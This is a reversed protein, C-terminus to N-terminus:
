FREYESEHSYSQQRDEVMRLTETLEQEISESSKNRCLLVKVAKKMGYVILCVFPLFALIVQCASVISIILQYGDHDRYAVQYNYMTMANILALLGLMMIDLVNHWQQKYPQAVAHLVLTITLQLALLFYFLTISDTVAYWTLALLRYIFFLGAFFRCKDKFCGQFSDFFPKLKELPIIACFFKMLCSDDQIRLLAFVKYCLPYVILLCPPIITLVFTFLLAPIAYVLHPKDLFWIDGSLYVAKSIQHDKPSGVWHIYGPTLISLSVKTVQAYCIVLFAALGHIASINASFQKIMCPLRLFKRMVSPNCVRMATVTAIILILSYTVTVYKFALMDLTTATSWMCYSLEDLTFFNLNFIGYVIHNVKITYSIVEHPVIIGDVDMNMADIMQIYFIFSNFMGSTFQVDYVIIVLFLITVPLLESVFYLLASVKCTYDNLKCQYTTSHYFVSNNSRCRGCLKGTRHHGCVYTDLLADSTDQPLRYESLYYSATYDYHCFGRPCQGTILQQEVESTNYGVWFGSRIYATRNQRNCRMIGVYRKNLTDTSCVCQGTPESLVFGPPCQTMEVSAVVVIPQFEANTLVIDATEGPKGYLRVVKRESVYTYAQDIRITANLNSKQVSAHFTDYSPQLLEDLMNFNLTAEQGPFVPIPGFSNHQADLREGSTSVQISVNDSFTFEGICGFSEKISTNNSVTWNGLRKHICLRQCPRLTSAFIAKGYVARNDLFKFELSREELKRDGLYQIFCSKLSIFDHENSSFYMIAGGRHVATNNHFLFTSHDNVYLVSAGFLVVAGGDYGTNSSFEILSNHQFNVRCSSLYMASGNNQKFITAESFYLFFSACSFVGKGSEYHKFGNHASNFYALNKVVSNSVFKCNNFSISSLYGHNYIDVSRPLMDVAPGYLATNSSISCNSFTMSMATVKNRSSYIRVGGGYQGANNEIVECNKFEVMNWTNIHQDYYAAFGLDIGGGNYFSRNRIFRSNQVLVSTNKPSNMYHIRIGGGWLAFNNSIISDKITINVNNPENKFALRVGGGQGFGEYKTSSGIGDTFSPVGCQNEVFKCGAIFYVSRIDSPIHDHIFEIYLGGALALVSKNSAKCNGDFSTNMMRVHGNTQNLLLGSGSGNRIIVNTLTVNTCSLMILGSMIFMVSDGMIKTDLTAGCGNFVINSIHLNTVNTFRFGAGSQTCVIETSGVGIALGDLHLGAVDTIRVEYEINFKGNCLTIAVMDSSVHPPFTNLCVLSQSYNAARNNCNELCELRGQPMFLVIVSTLYIFLRITAVFQGGYLEM